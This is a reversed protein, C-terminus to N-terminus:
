NAGYKAMVKQAVNGAIYVGVTGLVITKYDASTILKEALAWSASALSLLAAIFKRSYYRNM